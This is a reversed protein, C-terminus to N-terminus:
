KRGPQLTVPKVAGTAATTKKDVPTDINYEKDRAEKSKTPSLSKINSKSAPSSPPAKLMMKQKDDVHNTLCAAVHAYEVSGSENRKGEQNENSQETTAREKISLTPTNLDSAGFMTEDSVVNAKTQQDNVIADDVENHHKKTSLTETATGTRLPSKPVTEEEKQARAKTSDAPVEQRRTRDSKKPSFTEVWDNKTNSRKSRMARSLRGRSSRRGNNTSLSPSYIEVSRTQLSVEHPTGDTRTHLSEGTTTDNTSPIKSVTSNTSTCPSRQFEDSTNANSMATAHAHVASSTVDKNTDDHIGMEVSIDDINANSMATAQTHSAPLTVDKNTDDNIGTRRYTCYNSIWLEPKTKDDYENEESETDQITAFYPKHTAIYHDLKTFDTWVSEEGYKRIRRLVKSYITSVTRNPLLHKAIKMWVAGHQTLKKGGQEVKYSAEGNGYIRLGHLLRMEEDESWRTGGTHMEQKQTLKCEQEEEEDYSNNEEEGDNLRQQMMSMMTEKKVDSDAATVKSGAYDLEMDEGENGDLYEENVIHDTFSESCTTAGDDFIAEDELETEVDDNDDMEETTSNGQGDVHIRNKKPQVLPKPMKKKLKQASPNSPGTMSASSSMPLKKRKGISSSRKEKKRKTTSEPKTEDVYEEDHEDRVKRSVSATILMNLPSFSSSSSVASKSAQREQCLRQKEKDKAIRLRRLRREKRELQPLSTAALAVAAEQRHQQELFLRMQQHQQQHDFSVSVSSSPKELPLEPAHHLQEVAALAEAHAARVSHAVEHATVAHTAAAAATLVTTPGDDDDNDARMAVVAAEERRKRHDDLEQLRMRLRRTEEERQEAICYQVNREHACQLQQQELEQLQQLTAEQEVRRTYGQRYNWTTRRREEERLLYRDNDLRLQRRVRENENATNLRTPIGELLGTEIASSVAPEEGMRDSYPTTITGSSKVATTAATAAALSSSVGAAGDIIIGQQTQRLFLQRLFNDTTDGEVTASTTSEQQRLAISLAAQYDATLSAAENDDADTVATTTTTTAGLTTALLATTGEKMTSSNRSTARTSHTTVGPRSSEVAPSSATAGGEVRRAEVAAEIFRLQQALSNDATDNPAGRATGATASSRRITTNLLAASPTAGRAGLLAAHFAASSSSSSAAATVVSENTTQPPPPRPQPQQHQLLAAARQLDQQIQETTYAAVSGAVNGIIGSGPLVVPGSGRGQRGPIHRLLQQRLQEQQYQQGPNSGAADFRYPQDSSPPLSTGRGPEGLLSGLQNSSSGSLANSSSPLPSEGLLTGLQQRQLERQLQQRVFYDRQQQELRALEAEERRLALVRQDLHWGLLQHANSEQAQEAMTRQMGQSTMSGQVGTVGNGGSSSPTTMTGTTQGAAAAAAAAQLRARIAAEVSSHQTMTTATPTAAAITNMAVLHQSTVPEPRFTPSTATTNLGTYPVFQQASTDLPAMPPLGAAARAANRLTHARDDM